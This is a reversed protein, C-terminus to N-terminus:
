PRSCALLVLIKIATWAEALNIKSRGLERDHFTIPTEAFHADAHRLHWLIEEFFSYGKSRIKDFDLAELKKVRYCRFAGSCDKTPLGLVFRAFSNVARSMLKRHLPWGVIKGGRVYRSGLAVDVNPQRATAVLAPLYEPRHSLDADMNILWDYGHDIAYRFTAITATGLGLKGERLMCHVDNRSAALQNAWEGTGDPSNDDIILLDAGPLHKDIQTILTPLNDIENYTSIGILIRDCM